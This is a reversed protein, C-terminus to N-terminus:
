TSHADESFSVSPRVDAALGNPLRVEIDAGDVQFGSAEASRGSATKLPPKASLHLDIVDHM